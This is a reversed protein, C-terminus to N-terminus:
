LAEVSFALKRVLDPILSLYLEAPHQSIDFDIAVEAEPTYSLLDEPAWYVVGNHDDIVWVDPANEDGIVFALELGSGRIAFVLRAEDPIPLKGRQFVQRLTM